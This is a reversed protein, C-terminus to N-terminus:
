LGVSRAGRGRAAEALEERLSPDADGVAQLLDLSEARYLALFAEQGAVQALDRLNDLRDVMKIRKAGPSAARLRERDIRKREARPPMPTLSKSKNTLEDVLGAVAPGHEPGLEHAIAEPSIGCDEVTDHLWAAAIMVASANPLAAVRAAVREPHMIYPAGNYKRTQGLHWRTALEKARNILALEQENM